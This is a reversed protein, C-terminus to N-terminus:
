TDGTPAQKYELVRNVDDQRSNCRSSGLHKLMLLRQLPLGLSPPLTSSGGVLGTVKTFPPRQQQGAMLPFASTLLLFGHPRHRRTSSGTVAFDGAASDM